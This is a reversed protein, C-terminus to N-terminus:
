KVGRIELPTQEGGECTELIVSNIRGERCIFMHFFCIVGELEKLVSPGQKELAKAEGM